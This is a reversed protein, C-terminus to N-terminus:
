SPDRLSPAASARRRRPRRWRPSTRRRTAARPSSSGSASPRATTRWCKRRAGARTRPASRSPGARRPRRPPRPRARMWAARSRLSSTRPRPPAFTTAARMSAARMGPGARRDDRSRSATPLLHATGGTSARWAPRPRPRSFSTSLDAGAWRDSLRRGSM